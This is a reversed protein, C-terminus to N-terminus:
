SLAACVDTISGSYAFEYTAYTNADITYSATGDIHYLAGPYQVVGFPGHDGPLFYFTVQGTAGGIILGADPDFRDREMYTDLTEFRAGTELNVYAGRARVSYTVTGDSFDTEAVFGGSQFASASPPKANPEGAVDFACATGAPDVFGGHLPRITRTPQAAAVPAVAVLALVVAIAAGRATRTLRLKTM